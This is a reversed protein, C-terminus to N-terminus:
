KIVIVKVVTDDEQASSLNLTVVRVAAATPANSSDISGFHANTSGGIGSGTTVSVAYNADSMATTFNITYNGTSNRTVSTVNGGAIPANTGATTGNFTCWARVGYIPASGTQAGTLMAPTVAATSGTSVLTGTVNPVTIVNAGAQTTLQLNGSTDGSFNLATGLSTGASIISAM